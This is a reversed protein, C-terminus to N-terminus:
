GHSVGKMVNFWGVLPSDLKVDVEYPFGQVAMATVMSSTDGENVVQEYFKTYGGLTNLLGVSGSRQVIASVFMVHNYREIFRATPDISLLLAMGAPNIRVSFNTAGATRVTDMHDINGVHPEETLTSNRAM